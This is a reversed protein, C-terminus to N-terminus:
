KRIGTCRLVKPWYAVFSFLEEVKTKRALLKWGIMSLMVLQSRDVLMLFSEVVFVPVKRDVTSSSSSRGRKGM